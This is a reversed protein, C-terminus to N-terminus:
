KSALLSNEKIPINHTYQAIIYFNITLDFKHNIQCKPIFIANYFNYKAKLFSTFVIPHSHYIIKGRELDKKQNVLHEREETLHAIVTEQKSLVHKIQDVRPGEILSFSTSIIMTISSLFLMCAVTCRTIHM